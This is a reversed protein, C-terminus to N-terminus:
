IGRVDIRAYESRLHVLDGGGNVDGAAQYSSGQQTITPGSLGVSVRARASYADLTFASSRPVELTVVGYRSELTCAAPLAEDYRVTVGGYVATVSVRDGADRVDVRGHRAEISVPGSVSLVDVRGYTASCTLPGDVHRVDVAGHTSTVSVPGTINSLDISGYRLTATVQGNIGAITVAGHDSNVTLSLDRPVVLTINTSARTNGTGVREGTGSIELETGNRVISLGAGEAARRAEAQSVGYGVVELGISPSAGPDAGLVSITGFATSVSLRETGSWDATLGVRDLRHTINAPFTGVNCGSVGCSFNTSGVNGTALVIVLAILAVSTLSLRARAGSGARAQTWLMEVGLLVLLAPWYRLLNIRAGTQQTYLIVIGAALLALGLTRMGVRRHHM